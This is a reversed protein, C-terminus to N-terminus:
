ISPFAKFYLIPLFRPTKIVCSNCTLSLNKSKQQAFPKCSLHRFDSLPKAEEVDLASSFTTKSTLATRYFNIM